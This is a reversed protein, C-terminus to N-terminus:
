GAKMPQTKGGDTDAIDEAAVEAAAQDIAFKRAQLHDRLVLRVVGGALKGVVLAVCMAVLARSLVTVVGNGAYLGATIALAFALLAVQVSISNIM